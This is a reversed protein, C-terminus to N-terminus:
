QRLVAPLLARWIELLPWPEAAQGIVEIENLAAVESWHWRGNVSDVTLRLRDIEVPVGLDVLTGGDALPKIRGVPITRVLAGDRYLHLTASEVYYEGYQQPSGFGSWDGGGCYNGSACHSSSPPPGVLRIERARQNAPWNLEVWEGSSKGLESLWGTTADQYGTLYPENFSPARDPGGAPVPVWGRRDNVQAPLFNDYDTPHHSSASASAYPAVNQWGQQALLLVDDLSGSVHGMHCGTCTVTEGPRSWSSSQALSTYGRNWGRLLRGNADRLVIFGMVDAPVTMTFAGAPSVPATDWLVARVETDQRFTDCPQPYAPPYCFAGTFQNADIWLEALAASGPPPSNNAFPTFLSPNAYVNPNHIVSTEIDGLGRLSFPYESLTNPVNWQAPDDDATMTFNDTQATWGSRVVIPKAGMMDATGLGLSGLDIALPTKGSGDVNMVTLRYRLNSGQLDFTQGNDTYTGSTPLSNDESSQSYLIRGDPLGWPHIAYPGSEDGQGWAKAYTLGAIADTTNAYMREIGPYALRIGTKLTTHVMTSDQQSTFAILYDDPQGDQLIVAPQAAHYTDFHGSDDTISWVYAPTWALRRFDTGDPNVTMLHWTNPADRLTFGGPLIALAPNFQADPNPLIITGDPLTVASDGDDIRNYIGKESPQNFQNWWRTLLIRGDPLPTPHLVGGRDTTIRRMNHGDGDMVYLNFSAREDYHARSPYRSSVFAIRGDALYAPFLDHYRGYIQQNGFQAANPIAFNRDSITLQRLSTGNFDNVDIEYLRWGFDDHDPNLTKAGAFILKTADFNVDPSQVDVLGPLNYVALAGSAQRQVLKSGPAYKPIGTGFQGAPGLENVFITDRTALHSRAVFIIPVDLSSAPEARAIVIWAAAGLAFIILALGSRRCRRYLSRFPLCFPRSNLSM